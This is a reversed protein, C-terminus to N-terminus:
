IDKTVWIRWSLFNAESVSRHDSVSASLSRFWSASRHRYAIANHFLLESPKARKKRMRNM